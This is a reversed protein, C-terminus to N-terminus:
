LVGRANVYCARGALGSIWRGQPTWHFPPGEDVMESKKGESMTAGLMDLFFSFCGRM